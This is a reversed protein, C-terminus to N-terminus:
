GLLKFVFCCCRSSTLLFNRRSNMCSFFSSLDAVRGSWSFLNKVLVMICSLFVDELELSQLIRLASALLIGVAVEM